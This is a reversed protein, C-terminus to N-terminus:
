LTAQAAYDFVPVDAMRVPTTEKRALRIIEDAVGPSYTKEGCQTCIETPVNEIFIYNGNEDYIFTMNRFEIKGGCFVCKM